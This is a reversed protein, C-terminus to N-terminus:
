TYKLPEGIRDVCIIGTGAMMRLGEQHWMAYLTQDRPSISCDTLREMASWAARYARLSRLLTIPPWANIILHSGFISDSNKLFISKISPHPSLTPMGNSWDLTLTTLCPCPSALDLLYDGAQDWHAYLELATIRSGHTALFTALCDPFNPLRIVLYTLAPLSWHGCDELMRTDFRGTLSLFRLRTLKVMKQLLTNGDCPEDWLADERVVMFDLTLEELAPLTPLLGLLDSCRPFVTLRLSILESRGCFGHFLHPSYPFFAVSCNM